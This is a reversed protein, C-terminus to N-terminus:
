IFVNLVIRSFIQKSSCDFSSGSAPSCNEVEEAHGECERISQAALHKGERFVVCNRTRRRRGREGSEGESASCDPQCESWASWASWSAGGSMGDGSSSFCPEGDDMYPLSCTRSEKASGRCLHGGYSPAPETCTRTRSQVGVGCRGTCASWSSWNSWEGNVIHFRIWAIKVDRLSIFCWKAEPM